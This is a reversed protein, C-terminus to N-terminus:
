IQNRITEAKKSSCSKCLYVPKANSRDYGKTRVLRYLRGSTGCEGCNGYNLVHWEEVGLVKSTFIFKDIYFFILGGVFNAIITAWLKDTIYYVCPFLIISSLQWRCLYLGLRKIV